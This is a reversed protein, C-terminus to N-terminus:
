SAALPSMTTCFCEGHPTNDPTFDLGPETTTETEVDVIDEEEFTDLTPTDPPLATTMNDGEPQTPPLTSTPAQPVDTPAPSLPPLVPLLRGTANPGAPEMDEEAPPSTTSTASAEEAGEAAEAAATAAAAATTAVATAVTTVSVEPALTTPPGDLAPTPLVTLNLSSTAPPDAPLTTNNPPGSSFCCLNQNNLKPYKISLFFTLSHVSLSRVQSLSTM